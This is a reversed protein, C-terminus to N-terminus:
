RAGEEHRMIIRRARHADGSRVLVGIPFVESLGAQREGDLQCRIGEAQLACKIVEAEYYDNLTYVTVPEDPDPELESM